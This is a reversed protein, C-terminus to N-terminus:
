GARGKMQSITAEFSDIAAQASDSEANVAFSALGGQFEGAKVLMNDGYGLEQRIALDKQAIALDKQAKVLEVKQVEVLRQADQLATASRMQAAKADETALQKNILTIEANIKSVEAQKLQIEYQMMELKKYEIQVEVTKLELEKKKIELEQKAIEIQIAQLELDSALKILQITTQLAQDNTIKVANGAMESMVKSKEENTLGFQTFYDEVKKYADSIISKDKNIEVTVLDNYKKFDNSLDITAV